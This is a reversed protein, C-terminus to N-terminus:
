RGQVQDAQQIFSELQQGLMAIHKKVNDQVGDIEAFIYNKIQDSQDILRKLMLDFEDAVSQKEKEFKDHVSNLLKDPLLFMSTLTPNVILDALRSHSHHVHPHAM